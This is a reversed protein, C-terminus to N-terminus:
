GAKGWGGAGPKEFIGAGPARPGLMPRNAAFRFLPAALRKNEGASDMWEVIFMLPNAPLDGAPALAGSKVSRM